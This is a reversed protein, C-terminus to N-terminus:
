LTPLSIGIWPTISLKLTTYGCYQNCSSSSTLKELRKCMILSACQWGLFIPLIIINPHRFHKWYNCLSSMSCGINLNDIFDFTTSVMALGLSTSLTEQSQCVREVDLTREEEKGFYKLNTFKAMTYTRPLVFHVSWNKLM